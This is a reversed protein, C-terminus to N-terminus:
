RARWIACHNVWSPNPTRQTIGFPHNTEQGEQKRSASPRNKDGTHSLDGLPPQHHSTTITCKLKTSMTLRWLRGPRKRDQQWGGSHKETQASHPQTSESRSPVRQRFCFKVPVWLMLPQALRSCQAPEGSTSAVSHMCIVSLLGMQWGLCYLNPLRVTTGQDM